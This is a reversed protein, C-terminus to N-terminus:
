FDFPQTEGCGCTGVYKPMVKGCNPCTWTGDNPVDKRSNAIEEAKKLADVKKAKKGFLHNKEHKPQPPPTPNSVSKQSNKPSDYDSSTKADEYRMPKSNDINLHMSAPPADSFRMPAPPPVNDFDFFPVDDDPNNEPETEDNFTMPKNLEDDFSAASTASNPYVPQESDSFNNDSPKIFLFDPAASDNFDPIETKVSDNKIFDLNQQIDNQVQNNQNEIQPNYSPLSPEVNSFQEQVEYTNETPESDNNTQIDPLNNKNESSKIPINETTFSQQVPEDFFNDFPKLEGCGCTGVYNPLVKGCNPCTWTDSQTNDVPSTFVPKRSIKEAPNYLTTDVVTKTPEAKPAPPPTVPKPPEVPANNSPTFGFDDFPKPEGCGCAGVYNPMIKGCNPCTWTNDDQATPPPPTTEKKKFFSLKPEPKTEVKSPEAKPTPPTVPKPPEVPANNSPTFGFDDFPKPEGCGCTGVYNPMVKGCNPCTWTNDDQATPPPPTTEKKKFFSPKPEPKTEVKTPEAKPTPPTVPKPPEVPITPPTVPKPPEVPITPPTVPKPPEVPITPPTVPKPSEPQVEPADPTENFPRQASIEEEWFYDASTRGVSIKGIFEKCKVHEPHTQYYKLAVANKFTAYLVVDYESSVDFNYGMEIGVLGDIKGVLATLMEIMRDINQQKNEDDKIKWLVIHKVM